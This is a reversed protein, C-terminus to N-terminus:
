QRANKAREILLLKIAEKETIKDERCNAIEVTCDSNYIAKKDYLINMDKGNVKVAEPKGNAPIGLEHHMAAMQCAKAIEFVLEMGRKDSNDVIKQIFNIAAQKSEESDYILTGMGMFPGTGDLKIGDICLFEVTVGNRVESVIEFMSKKNNTKTINTM